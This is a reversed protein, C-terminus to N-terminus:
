KKLFSTRPHKNLIKADMLKKYKGCSVDAYSANELVVSLDDQANENNETNGLVSRSIWRLAPALYGLSYFFLKIFGAEITDCVTSKAIVKVQKREVVEDSIPREEFM